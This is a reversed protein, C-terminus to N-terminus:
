RQIWGAIHVDCRRQNNCAFGAEKKGKSAEIPGSDARNYLSCGRLCQVQMDMGGPEKIVVLEFDTAATQARGVSWGLAVLAAVIVLRGAQKFM